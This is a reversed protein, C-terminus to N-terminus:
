GLNLSCFSRRAWCCSAAPMTRRLSSSPAIASARLRWAPRRDRCGRCGRLGFQGGDPLDSDGVELGPVVFGDAVLEDDADAAIEVRGGHLGLQAGRKLAKRRGLGKGRAMVGEVLRLLRDVEDVLFVHVLGVHLDDAQAGVAVVGVDGRQRDHVADEAASIEGAAQELFDAGFLAEGVRDIASVPKGVVM